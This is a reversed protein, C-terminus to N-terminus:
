QQTALFSAVLGTDRWGGADSPRSVTGDALLVRIGSVGNGGVIAVGDDVGGLPETPGGLPLVDVLTADDEGRLVAVHTGDVWTADTVGTGVVLELPTAGFAVPLFDGDRQVGLVLVRSGQATALAVLVRSGDRSVELASVRGDAPLPLPHSDGAADTVVLGSPDDAPVSWTFGHLDLSPAVLGPRRDLLIPDATGTVLSVGEAGLVAVADRARSLSAAVPDLPDASTGIAPLATVGEPGLTGFAGDLGGVASDRVAYDVTPSTTAASPSLALGGSTVDVDTVTRLSGLLSAQLQQIMRRQTLGPESRADAGLDVAIRPSAYETKASAGEPFASVLVGSGLWAAPGRVLEGAIRQALYRQTTAPFWRLDPVLNEFSSDFFYLPYSAFTTAFNSVSLVTGADARAIRNEGDVTTFDYTLTQQQAAVATYAGTADVEGVITLDLALTDDDVQRPVIPSTTVLVRETGTWEAGALFQKAVDYNNQPSRGARIFGQLIESPNQGPVPSEALFLDPEEAGEDAVQQVQVDGSTPIAVCGALLALTALATLVSMGRVRSM